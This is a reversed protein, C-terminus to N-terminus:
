CQVEVAIATLALGTLGRLLVTFSTSTATIYTLLGLPVCALYLQVKWNDAMLQWPHLPLGRWGESRVLHLVQSLRSKPWSLLYAQGAEQQGCCKSLLGQVQVRGCLLTLGPPLPVPSGAGSPACTLWGWLTLTCSLQSLWKNATLHQLYPAPVSLKLGTKFVLLCLALEVKMRNKPKETNPKTSALDTEWFPRSNVVNGLSVKHAM